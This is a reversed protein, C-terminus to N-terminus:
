FERDPFPVLELGNRLEESLDFIIVMAVAFMFIVMRKLKLNEHIDQTFPRGAYDVLIVTTQLWWQYIFMVSNKLNPKFEADYELSEDNERDM